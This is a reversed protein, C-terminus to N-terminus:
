KIKNEIESVIDHVSIIFKSSPPKLLAEIAFGAIFALKRDTALKGLANKDSVIEVVKDINVKAGTLIGIDEGSVKLWCLGSKDFDIKEERLKEIARRAIEVSINNKDFENAIGGEVLGRKSLEIREGPSSLVTLMNKAHWYRAKRDKTGVISVLDDISFTPERSMVIIIM